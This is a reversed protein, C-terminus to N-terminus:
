ISAMWNMYDEAKGAKLDNMYSNVRKSFERESNEPIDYDVGDYCITSIHTITAATGTGFADKLQGNKQAEIVEDVSIKREEIKYGWKKALEIISMRTIGSLISSSTEPTVITDGIHFMVNMTGCEEIYKHEKGDTWLIQQYGQELAKKTPLLAAAYNGGMKIYGTGGEAARTYETEVKVKVSGSYYESVPSCFILFKFNNAPAVGLYEETAFMIPRIYLSSGTKEPIWDRDINLLANLGNLFQEEPFAPMCLREASIEMRKAHQDPRFVKVEGNELKFAKIGEFVTSGYHIAVLSPWFSLPQFPLIKGKSWKGDNYDAMYMHDAFTRGFVLNDFDVESLKSKSVKEIEINDVISNM